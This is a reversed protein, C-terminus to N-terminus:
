ESPCPELQAELCEIRGELNAIEAQMPAILDTYAVINLLAGVQESRRCDDPGAVIRIAGDARWCVVYYAYEITGQARTPLSGIVLAILLAAVILAPLYIRRTVVIKSPM